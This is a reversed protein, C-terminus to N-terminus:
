PVLAALVIKVCGAHFYDESREPRLHDLIIKKKQM